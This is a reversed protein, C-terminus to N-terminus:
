DELEFKKSSFKLEDETIQKNLEELFYTQYSICRDLTDTFVFMEDKLNIFVMEGPRQPFEAVVKPNRIENYTFRESFEDLTGCRNNNVDYIFSFPFEEKKPEDYKPKKWRMESQTVYGPREFVKTERTIEEGTSSYDDPEENGFGKSLFGLILIVYLIWFHKSIGFFSKNKKSIIEPSKPVSITEKIFVLKNYAEESMLFNDYQNNKYRVITKIIQSFSSEKKGNICFLYQGDIITDGIYILNSEEIYRIDNKQIINRLNNKLDSKVKVEGFSDLLEAM